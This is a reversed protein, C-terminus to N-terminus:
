GGCAGWGSLIAALDSGNVVGDSNLDQACLGACPGWNSLVLSLDAGNVVGDLNLDPPCDCVDNGGGDTWRGAINPRPLNGCVTTASLTLAPVMAASETVGIGGQAVTASNGSVTCATMALESGPSGQAFWSVGGMLNSSSNGTVTVRLLEPRGQVLHMGGGRSNCQNDTVVVDIFRMAGQNAQVGGGDTSATNGRFETNMVMGTCNLFYAGGGFGSVNGAFVCNRLRVASDKAYLGGGVLFSTGPPNTGTLGDTVTLSEIAAIAPEGQLRIVSVSQGGTGGIVTGSAGSGRLVIPKGNFAIPGPYTGAALKVIRMSDTPASDIAAQITAFDGPVFVTQCEDPRGDSDVDDSTRSLIDCSDIVANANCDADTGAALECSDIKGDRDCDRAPDIVQDCSDIVGNEDCDIEPNSAIQCEDPIGNLDCDGSKGRVLDCSDPIWNGNCDPSLGESVECADLRDNGNCDGAVPDIAVYRLSVETVGFGKCETPDVTVPCSVTVTVARDDSMIAMFEARTLQFSVRDPTAPCSNGGAELFRRPAGGDVSVEIWETAGNLDGSVDVVVTVSSEPSPLSDFTGSRPEDGSPAGLNGSSVALLVAGQCTDPKLDGNCDPARGTSCEWPDPLANMNCDPQCEDPVQNSDVDASSGLGVDCQDFRGNDNCDVYAKCADGIGDADCDSQGPNAVLPCNDQADARGDNDDDADCADGQADGDTNLQGANSALPCNDQGDPIGDNDDDADCVDGQGDADNDSQNANPSTPCNDCADGRADGDGDLQDANPVAICNDINDRIGDGDSDPSLIAFRYTAQTTAGSVGDKISSSAQFTFDTGIVRNNGAVVLHACWVGRIAAASDAPAAYGGAASVLSSNM